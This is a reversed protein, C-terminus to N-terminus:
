GQLQLKLAEKVEQCFKQFSPLQLDAVRQKVGWMPEPFFSDSSFRAMVHWHVQPMYNGFSAINIKIPQYYCLMEQEIVTVAELLREREAPTCDSFEKREAQAFVKLWPIESEETEVHILSDEYVKTSV